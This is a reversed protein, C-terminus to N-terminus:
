NELELEASSAIKSAAGDGDNDEIGDRHHHVNDDDADKDNSNISNFNRMVSKLLEIRQEESLDFKKGLEDVKIVVEDFGLGLEHMTFALSILQGFILNHTSIVTEVLATQTLDDWHLVDQM